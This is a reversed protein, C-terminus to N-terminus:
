YAVLTLDSRATVGFIAVSAVPNGRPDLAPRYRAREALAGCAAERVPISGASELLTCGTARGDAGVVLRFIATVEASGLLDILGLDRAALWRDANGQPSPPTSGPELGAPDAGWDVQKEIECAAFAEAARAALPITWSGLARGDEAALSVTSAGAFEAAFAPPLSPIIVAEGLTDGVEVAALRRSHAAGGPALAIRVDPDGRRIAAPLDPSALIVDYRGSGPLTRLVFTAPVPTGELRRTLVCRSTAGDLHWRAGQPAAPAPQAAASAAALWGAVGAFGAGKLWYRM